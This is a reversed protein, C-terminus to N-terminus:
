KIMREDKVPSQILADKTTARETSRLRYFQQVTLEKSEERNQEYNNM